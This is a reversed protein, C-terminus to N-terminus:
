RLPRRERDIQAPADGVPNEAGAVVFAVIEIKLEDVHASAADDGVVHAAVPRM